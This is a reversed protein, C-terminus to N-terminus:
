KVCKHTYFIHMFWRTKKLYKASLIQRLLKKKMLKLEEQLNKIQKNLRKVKVKVSM